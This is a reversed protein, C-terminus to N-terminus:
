TAKTGALRLRLTPSRGTILLVQLVQLLLVELYLLLDLLFLLVDRVLQCLTEVLQLLLLLRQRVLNLLLLLEQHATVCQGQCHLEPQTRACRQESDDM